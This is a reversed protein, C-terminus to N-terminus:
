SVAAREQQEVTEIQQQVARHCAVPQAIFPFPVKDGAGRVRITGYGLLRGFVSQDLSVGEVKRLLLDVSQRKIIGRKGIVRRTTVAFETTFYVVASRLGLLVALLLFFGAVMGADDENGLSLGVATLLLLIPKLFHAWHQKARYIVTEGQNLNADVYGM